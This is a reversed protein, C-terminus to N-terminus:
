AGDHLGRGFSLPRRGDGPTERARILDALEQMGARMEERLDTIDSRVEERLARMELRLERVESELGSVRAELGSVRAELGSVRSVLQIQTDHLANTREWLLSFTGAMVTLAITLSLGLNWRTITIGGTTRDRDARTTSGTGAGPEGVATRSKAADTKSKSM